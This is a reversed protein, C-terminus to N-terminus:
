SLLTLYMAQLGRLTLFVFPHVRRCTLRSGRCSFRLLAKGIPQLAQFSSSTLFATFPGVGRKELGKLTSHLKELQRNEEAQSFRVTSPYFFLIRIKTASRIKACSGRLEVVMMSGRSIQIIKACGVM